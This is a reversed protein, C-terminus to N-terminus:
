HFSIHIELVSLKEIALNAPCEILDSDVETSDQHSLVILRHDPLHKSTSVTNLTAYLFDM